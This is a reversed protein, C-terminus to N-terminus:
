CDGDDRTAWGEGRREPWHSCWWDDLEYARHVVVTRVDIFLVHEQM